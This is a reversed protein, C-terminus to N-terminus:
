AALCVAADRRRVKEFPLTGVLMVHFIVGLSWVDCQYTYTATGGRSSIVEPAIYNPTGCTTMDMHDAPWRSLRVATWLWVPLRVFVIPRCGTCGWGEM